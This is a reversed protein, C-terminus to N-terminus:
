ALVSIRTGRSGMGAFGRAPFEDSASFLHAAVRSSSDITAKGASATEALNGGGAHQGHNQQSGSGSGQGLFQGNGGGSPAMTLTEVPTHNSSLFTHLESVHGSLVQAAENSAPILTAHVSGGISEARVGVWGLAPDRYGAEAHVHGSRLDGSAAEVHTGADLAAFTDVTSSGPAVPEPMTHSTGIHATNSVQAIGFGGASSIETTVQKISETGSTNKTALDDKRKILHVESASGTQGASTTAAVTESANVANENKASSVTGSSAAIEGRKQDSRMQEGIKMVTDHLPQGTVSAKQTEAQSQVSKNAAPTSLQEAGSSPPITQPWDSQSNARLSNMLQRGDRNPPAVAQTHGAMESDSMSAIANGAQLVPYDASVVPLVSGDGAETVAEGPLVLNLTKPTRTAQATVTAPIAGGTAVPVSPAANADSASASRAPKSSSEATRATKRHNGTCGSAVDESMEAPETGFRISSLKQEGSFDGGADTDDASPLQMAAADLKQTGTDSSPLSNAADSADAETGASGPALSSVISVMEGPDPQGNETLAGDQNLSELQARWSELFSGATSGSEAAPKMGAAPSKGAKGVGGPSSRSLASGIPAVTDTNLNAGVTM